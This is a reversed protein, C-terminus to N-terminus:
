SAKRWRVLLVVLVVVLVLAFVPVLVSAISLGVSAALEGTALVPNALGATTVTSTGRATTTASSVALATGGGAIIALIWRAAPPIDVGLLAATLLTGAITAVPVSITDLVNDVAPIYYAAVELVAASGFVLAAQWTGMWALDPSLNVLGMMSAISVILPPIFVRFGCSASLAIGAALAVIIQVIDPSAELAVVETRVPLM